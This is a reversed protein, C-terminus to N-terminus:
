ESTFESIEAKKDLYEPYTTFNISMGLPPVFWNGEIKINCPDLFNVSGHCTKISLVSNLADIEEQIQTELLKQIEAMQEASKDEMDKTIATQVTVTSSKTSSVDQQLEMGFGSFTFVSTSLMIGLKKKM